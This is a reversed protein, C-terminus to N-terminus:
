STYDAWFAQSRTSHLEANEVDGSMRMLARECLCSAKAMRLFDNGLRIQGACSAVHILIYPTNANKLIM